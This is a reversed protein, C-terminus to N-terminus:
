DPAALLRTWHQTGKTPVSKALTLKLMRKGDEDEVTWDCDDVSVRRFLKGEAVKNGRVTIRLATPLIRCQVEKARADHPLELRVDVEADTQTWSCGQETGSFSAMGEMVAGNLASAFYPGADAQPRRAPALRPPRLVLLYIVAALAATALGFAFPHLLHAALVQLHGELTSM